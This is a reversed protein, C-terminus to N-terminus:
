FPFTTLLIKGTLIMEGSSELTVNVERALQSIDEFVAGHYWPVSYPCVPIDSVNWSDSCVLINRCVKLFHWDKLKSPILQLAFHADLLWYREKETGLLMDLVLTAQILFFPDM